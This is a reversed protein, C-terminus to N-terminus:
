ELNRLFFLCSHKHTHYVWVCMYIYVYIYINYYLYNLEISQVGVYFRCSFVVLFIMLDEVCDWCKWTKLFEMEQDLRWIQWSYGSRHCCPDQPGQQNRVSAPGWRINWRKPRKSSLFRLTSSCHFVLLVYNLKHIIIYDYDYANFIDNNSYILKWWHKLLRFRSTSEKPLRQITRIMIRLSNCTNTRSSLTVYM